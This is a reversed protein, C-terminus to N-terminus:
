RGLVVSIIQAAICLCGLTAGVGSSVRPALYIAALLGFYDAPSM